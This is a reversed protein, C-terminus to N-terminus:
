ALSKQMLPSHEFEARLAAIAAAPDQSSFLYSSTVVSTVGAQAIAPATKLNVGGDIQVVVDHKGDDIMGRLKKVKAITEPIFKQRAFGPLIAMLTVQDIYNLEYRLCDPDTESNLALGVKLGFKQAEIICAHLRSVAEVHFIVMEVGIDAMIRFWDQPRSVMLHIELPLRSVEKCRRVLEEGFTITPTFHGDAIDIQMRDAGANEATQIERGFHLWDAGLISAAIQVM